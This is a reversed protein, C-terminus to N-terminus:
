LMGGLGVGLVEVLDEDMSMLPDFLLLALLLKELSWGPKSLVELTTM